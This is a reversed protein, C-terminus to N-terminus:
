RGRPPGQILHSGVEGQWSGNNCRQPRGRLSVWQLNCDRVRDTKWAAATTPLRFSAHALQLKRGRRQAKLPTSNTGLAAGTRSQWPPMQHAETKGWKGRGWRSLVGLATRYFLVDTQGLSLGQFDRQQQSRCKQKWTWGPNELSQWTSQPLPHFPPTYKGLSSTTGM